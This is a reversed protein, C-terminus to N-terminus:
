KLQLDSKAYKKSGRTERKLTWYKRADKTTLSPNDKLFDRMYANYEFQSDIESQYNKDKKLLQIRNWEDAADQLTKGINQKMWNMFLVNFKFHTGIEATFFRRVNETNKYNDTIITTRSLNEVNWDFNSKSKQAKHQKDKKGTELFYIIRNAIEIKGGSCDIENKKCFSVLEEKLWYFDKFDKLSIDGNLEPRKETM